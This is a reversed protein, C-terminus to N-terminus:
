KQWWGHVNSWLIVAAMVIGGVLKSFFWVGSAKALLETLADVKPELMLLGDVKDELRSLRVLLDGNTPETM